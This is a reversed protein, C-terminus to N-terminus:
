RQGAVGHQTPEFSPFRWEFLLCHCQCHCQLFGLIVEKLECFRKLANGKSLWIIDNHILLDKYEASMDTLLKRFLHHQLSSTCRIFNIIAMVSDMTEKLDKEKTSADSVARVMFIRRTTTCWDFNIVQCVGLVVFWISWNSFLSLSSTRRYLCRYSVASFCCLCTFCCVSRNNNNNCGSLCCYNGLTDM